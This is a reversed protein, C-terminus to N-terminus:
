ALKEGEEKMRMLLSNVKEESVAILTTDYAYTFKNINRIVNINASTAQHSLLAYAFLLLLFLCWCLLFCNIVNLFNLIM